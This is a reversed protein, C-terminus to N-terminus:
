DTGLSERYAILDDMEPESILINRPPHPPRELIGRIRAPPYIGPKAASTMFWPTSDIGGDPDVDGGCPPALVM